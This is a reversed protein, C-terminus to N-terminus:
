SPFQDIVNLDIRSECGFGHWDLAPSLDGGPFYDPICRM